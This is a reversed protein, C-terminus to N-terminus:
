NLNKQALKKKLIEVMDVDIEYATM